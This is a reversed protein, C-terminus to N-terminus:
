VKDNSLPFEEVRNRPTPAERWFVARFAFSTIVAASLPGVWYVWHMDWNGTWVAPGFSRAPNFSGGSYPGQINILTIFNSFFEASRYQTRVSTIAIGTVALGFRLAVSDHNKSNRPDWVGCCVLILIMTAIFEVTVAQMGSVDKHPKTVCIGVDGADFVASPTVAKLLGYGIFAGIMQAAIYVVAMQLHSPKTFYFGKFYKSFMGTNVGIQLNSCCNDRRSEFTSWFCM